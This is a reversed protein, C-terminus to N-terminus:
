LSFAIEILENCRILYSHHEKVFTYGNHAIERCIAPHSLYYATKELLDEESTYVDLHEGPSLHALLDNQYNTLLFGECGLVDWVRLPIGNRIPRSTLNLNIQSNHFIIPMETVTNAGPHVHVDRLVSTDSFTYLDVDYRASLKKLLRTRELVTINTGIYFQSVLARYDAYSKEPFLYKRQMNKDFYDLIEPTIMEDILYTGYIKQQVDMLSDLYGRMFESSHRLHVYPNKESYLSGIFSIKHSFKQNSRDSATCIVSQKDEIDCALPMYFICDPNYKAFDSVLASDFLFIRNWPNSISHSFLELVPSDVVWCVYRIHHINCVESIVPYYNISFVFDYSHKQLENHVLTLTEKPTVDKRSVELDIIHVHHGLTEFAKIIDRECISNYRYFLINM